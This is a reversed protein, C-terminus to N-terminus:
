ERKTQLIIMNREGFFRLAKLGMFVIFIYLVPIITSVKNQFFRSSRTAHAFFKIKLILKSSPTTTMGKTRVRWATLSIERFELDSLAVHLFRTEFM